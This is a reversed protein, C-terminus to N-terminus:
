PWQVGPLLSPKQKSHQAVGAECLPVTSAKRMVQGESDAVLTSSDMELMLNRCSWGVQLLHYSLTHCHVRHLEQQVAAGHVWHDLHNNSFTNLVLQEPLINLERGLNTLFRVEDLISSKLNFSSLYSSVISWCHTTM